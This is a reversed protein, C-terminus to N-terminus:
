YVQYRNGSYAAATGPADTTSGDAPAATGAPGAFSLCDRPVRSQGVVSFARRPSAGFTPASSAAGEEPLALGAGVRRRITM